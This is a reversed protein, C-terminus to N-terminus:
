GRTGRATRPLDTLRLPGASRTWHPQDAGPKRSFFEIWTRISIGSPDGVLTALERETAVRLDLRLWFPRTPQLGLASIALNDLCWAEAAPLSLGSASRGIGAMVVKFKEEWVDYSVTLREPQHRFGPGNDEHSLTLQSMYVVSAGDQLRKLPRGTLFHFQPAAVRLNDGDFSVNLLDAAARASFLPITLGALLWSRRSLNERAFQAM